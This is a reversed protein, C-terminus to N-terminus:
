RKDNLSLVIGDEDQWLVGGQVNNHMILHDTFGPGFWLASVRGILM